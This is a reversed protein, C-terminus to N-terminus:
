ARGEVFGGGDSPYMTRAFLLKQDAIPGFDRRRIRRKNDDPAPRLNEEEEGPVTGNKM